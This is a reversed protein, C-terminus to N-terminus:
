QTRTHQKYRKHHTNRHCLLPTKKIKECARLAVYAEVYNPNDQLAKEYEGIAEINRKAAALLKGKQVHIDPQMWFIPSSHTFVYSFEGMASQLYFAEDTKNAFNLGFCYHHIRLWDPGIKGSYLKVDAPSSNSGLKVQCFPPPLSLEAATPAYGAVAFAQNVGLM